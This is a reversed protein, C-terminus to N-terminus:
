KGEGFSVQEEQPTRYRDRFTKIGIAVFSLITLPFVAFGVVLKVCTVSGALAAALSAEAPFRWLMALLIVNELLECAGVFVPLYVLLRIKSQPALLRRLTYTLSLTLAVTMLLVNLGDLLQFKRYAIRGDEGLHRLLDHAEASSYGFTEELLPRGGMTQLTSYPGFTFFLIAYGLWLILAFAVVSGKAIEQVWIPIMEVSVLRDGSPL